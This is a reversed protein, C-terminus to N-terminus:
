MRQCASWAIKSVEKARMPPQCKAKNARHLKDEIESASWQEEWVLRCGVRYLGDNREGKGFLPVDELRLNPKPGDFHRGSGRAEADVKERLLLGKLWEPPPVAKTRKVWEYRKGSIHTSPAAVIYGGDARIDIGPFLKARNRFAGLGSHYLLHGGKGTRATLTAPWKGFKKQVARYSERGADGDIDVVLLGSIWGTAIAINADPWRAWWKRIMDKDHSASRLGDPLLEPDEKPHKGPCGCERESCTCRGLSIGHLPFVAFGQDSYKLAWDVMATM